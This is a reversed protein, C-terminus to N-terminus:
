DWTKTEGLKVIQANMVKYDTATAGTKTIFAIVKLKASNYGNISFTYTKTDRGKNVLASAAIADGFPNSIVKRLVCQHKFNVIPDGAGAFPHGTITNYSNRQDFQNGTGSVDDETLYVTLTYDGTLSQNFGSHVIVTADSGNVSTELSLGCVATLNRALDFNSQWQTRNLITKGLSPIRNIMGSPITMPTGNSFYNTLATYQAIEMGDAFHIHVPIAREPHADTIADLKVFGDTSQAQGAGTFLELLVKQTFVEPVNGITNGNDPNGAPAQSEEKSCSMFVFLMFGALVLYRKM